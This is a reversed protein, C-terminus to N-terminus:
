QSCNLTLSRETNHKDSMHEEVISRWVVNLLKLIAKDPVCGMYLWGIILIIVLGSSSSTYVKVIRGVVEIMMWSIKNPQLYREFHDLFWDANTVNISKLWKMKFAMLSTKVKSASVEKKKASKWLYSFMEFVCMRKKTM